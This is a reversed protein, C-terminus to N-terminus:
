AKEGLIESAVRDLEKMVQPAAYRVTDRVYRRERIRMHRSYQRVKKGARTVYGRVPQGAQDLGYEHIRAYRLSGPDVRYETNSVKHPQWRGALQGSRRMLRQGSLMNLVMYNRYSLAATRLFREPNGIEKAYKELALQVQKTGTVVATGATQGPFFGSRPLAM